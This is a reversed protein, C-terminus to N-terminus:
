INIGKAKRIFFEFLSKCWGDVSREGDSAKFVFFLLVETVEFDTKIKVKFARISRDVRIAFFSL